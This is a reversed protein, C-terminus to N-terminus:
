LITYNVKDGFFQPLIVMGISLENDGLGVRYFERTAEYAACCLGSFLEKNRHFLSRFRKPIVFVLQRHAVPEIVTEKLFQCLIEARKM